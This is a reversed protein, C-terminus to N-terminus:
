SAGGGGQTVPSEWGGYRGGHEEALRALELTIGNIAHSEVSDVRSVV